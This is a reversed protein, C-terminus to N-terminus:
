GTFGMKQKNLGVGTEIGHGFCREFSEWSGAGMVGGMIVYRWRLKMEMRCM